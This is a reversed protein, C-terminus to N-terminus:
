DRTDRGQLTPIDLVRVDAGKQVFHHPLVWRHPIQCVGAIRQIVAVNEACGYGHAKGFALFTEPDDDPRPTDWVRVPNFCDTCHGTVPAVAEVAKTLRMSEHSNLAPERRVWYKEGEYETYFEELTCVYHQNANRATANFRVDAVKLTGDHDRFVQGVHGYATGTAVLGSVHYMYLEPIDAARGAVGGRCVVIVDGERIGDFSTVRPHRVQRRRIFHAVLYVGVFFALAWKWGATLLLVVVGIWFLLHMSAGNLHISMPHVPWPDTELNACRM